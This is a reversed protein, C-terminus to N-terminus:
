RKQRQLIRRFRSYYADVSDKNQQTLKLCMYKTFGPEKSGYTDRMYQAFADWTEWHGYDTEYRMLLHNIDGATTQIATEVQHRKDVKSEVQERHKFWTQFQELWTEIYDGVKGDFKDPKDVYVKRKCSSQSQMIEMMTRQSNVLATVADKLTNLENPGASEDEDTSAASQAQEVAIEFERESEDNMPEYAQAEFIAEM